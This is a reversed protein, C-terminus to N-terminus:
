ADGSHGRRGARAAFADLAALVEPSRWQRGRQRDTSEVVVEAHVLPTLSAYVNSMAIGLSAAVTPADIVPQSVLLDAIRWVHAHRRAKIRDNWSDRIQRLDAVLRRGNTVAAFSAQALQEIIPEPNGARYANLAAFYDDVRVLLGASVPLTVHRTLGKGRLMAQILARGTRGNGDVFPHITEFQAHAIAAHALVPLDDRDLFMVLDAIASEIRSHHPPVFSAHHPGLPSGGIWVQEDRWRGAITPQSDGLLAAHMTLLAQSNLDTALAIAARMAQANAVILAANSTGPRAALAAEAIARASATLNEIQSSAASESRMLVTAFPAIDIGVEADFRAIESAADDILAMLDGRLSLSRACIGPAIAAAYPGTHQRVQARSAMGPERSSAWPLTEYAVAPWAGAGPPGSVSSM